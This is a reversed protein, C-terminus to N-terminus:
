MKTYVIYKSSVTEKQAKSQLLKELTCDGTGKHMRSILFFEM